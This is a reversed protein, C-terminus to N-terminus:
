GRRNGTFRPAPKDEPATSGRFAAARERRGPSPRARFRERRASAACGSRLPRLAFAIRLIPSSQVSFRIFSLLRYALCLSLVARAATTGSPCVLLPSPRRFPLSPFLLPSVLRSSRLFLPLVANRAPRRSKLTRAEDSVFRRRLARRRRRKHSRAAPSSAEDFRENKSRNAM